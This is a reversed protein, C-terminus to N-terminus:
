DLKWSHDPDPIFTQAVSKCYDSYSITRVIWGGPVQFRDTIVDPNKTDIGGFVVGGPVRVNRVSSGGGSRAIIEIKLPM